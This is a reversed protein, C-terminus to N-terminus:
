KLHRGGDLHLTQGTTYDSSLLYNVAKVAEQAGPCIELLSKKLAKERYAASDDDNFMLLAPAISNVKVKPALLASFSLTLNHLAAKSAAYAIHKKSGKVQVYDTMHIIDSVIDNASLMDQFALNLQYPANAHVQMMKQFLTNYDETDAEQDWDSANHILARLSKTHSKIDSILKSLGDQTSFDAQILIAGLATLEDVSPKKTRYTVIVKYHQALLDKAIALGLRQTGGTILIPSTM